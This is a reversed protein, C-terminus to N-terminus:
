TLMVLLGQPALLPTRFAYGQYSFLRQFYSVHCADGPAPFNRYTQLWGQSCLSIRNLFLFFGTVVYLFLSFVTQSLLHLVSNKSVHELRRQTKWLTVAVVVSTYLVCCYLLESGGLTLAWGQWVQTHEGRYNRIGWKRWPGELRNEGGLLQNFLLGIQLLSSCVSVSYGNSWM